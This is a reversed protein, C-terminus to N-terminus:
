NALTEQKVLTELYVVQGFLEFADDQADNFLTVINEDGSVLSEALQSSFLENSSRLAIEFAGKLISSEDISALDIARVLNLVGKTAQELRDKAKTTLSLLAFLRRVTSLRAKVQNVATSLTLNGDPISAAPTIGSFPASDAQLAKVLNHSQSLELTPGEYAPISPSALRIPLVPATTYPKFSIRPVLPQILNPNPLERRARKPPPVMDSFLPPLALHETKVIVLGPPYPNDLTALKSNRFPDQPSVM